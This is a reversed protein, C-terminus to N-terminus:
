SIDEWAEVGAGCDEAREGGAGGAGRRVEGQDLEEAGPDVVDDVGM